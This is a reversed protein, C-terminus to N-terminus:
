ILYKIRGILRLLYSKKMMRNVFDPMKIDFVSEIGTKENPENQVLLIEPVIEEDEQTSEMIAIYDDDEISISVNNEILDENNEIQKRDESIKMKIQAIATLTASSMRNQTKSKIYVMRSFLRECSESHPIIALVRLALRKLSSKPAAEWFKHPDTEKYNFGSKGVAYCKALDIVQQSQDFTYNCDEVLESMMVVIDKLSFKASIATQRKAPHLFFSIIYINSLLLETRKNISVLVAKLGPQIAEPVTKEEVLNNFHNYMKIVTPWVDCFTANEAELAKTHNVIFGFIQSFTKLENFINGDLHKLVDKPLTKRNKKGNPSSLDFTKRFWEENVLISDIMEFFSFWRTPTYSKITRSGEERLLAAWHSRRFHESIKCAGQRMNDHDDNKILDQSILNFIHLVCPIARLNPIDGALMRKAARMVPASDSVVAVLKGLDPENDKVPLYEKIITNLGRNIVDANHREGGTELNGIYQSKGNYIFLVAIYSINSVDTWGDLVVNIYEANAIDERQETKVDDLLEPLTENRLVNRGPISIGVYDFYERVYPDNAFAFPTSTSIM